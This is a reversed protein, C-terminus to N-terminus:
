LLMIIVFIGLIIRYIGFLRLGFKNIKNLMFDIAILGSVFAAVFGVALQSISEEILDGQLLGIFHSLVAGAILPIGILFSFNTAQKLSMGQSLGALITIGSRSTGRILSLPHLIGVLFAQRISTSEVEEERKRSKYVYDAVIMLLGISILMFAVILNSKFLEDIREEFLFGIIGAPIIAILIKAVFIQAQREQFIRTLLRFLYKRYYLLLALLTGGHLMVDFATSHEQMDLLQPALILHGSSSVPIFETIGQIIGLILAELM